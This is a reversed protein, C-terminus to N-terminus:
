TFLQNGLLIRGLFLILVRAFISIKSKSGCIFASLRLHIQYQQNVKALSSNIGATFDLLGSDLFSKYNFLQFKSLYM